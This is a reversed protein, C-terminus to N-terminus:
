EKEKTNSTLVIITGIVIESWAIWQDEEFWGISPVLGLIGFLVLAVGILMLFLRAV